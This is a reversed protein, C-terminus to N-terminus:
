FKARSWNIPIATEHQLSVCQVGEENHGYALFDKKFYDHKWKVATTVSDVSSQYGERRPNIFGEIIM